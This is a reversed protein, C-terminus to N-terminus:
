GMPKAPVGVVTLGDDVCAVVSAGAGIMVRRGITIGHRVSSGIGVWTGEGIVVNGGLHSGPSVHVFEDIRCDHDVTAGTNIICGRGVVSGTNVVAHPMVVTGEAITAGTSVFATPDVITALPVGADEVLVFLESRRVNDGVAVVCRDGEAAINGLDSCPGLVEYRDTGSDDPRPENDLFVISRHDGGREAVDAVVRGHGGFGLVILRSM